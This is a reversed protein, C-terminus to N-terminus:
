NASDDGATAEAQVGDPAIEAPAEEGGGRSYVYATLMKITETDLRDGWAPMAGMKPNLIQQKIQAESEGRLWIADNM